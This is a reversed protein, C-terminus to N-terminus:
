SEGRDALRDLVLLRARDWRILARNRTLATGEVVKIGGVTVAWEWRALRVGGRFKLGIDVLARAETIARANARNLAALLQERDVSLPTGPRSPEATM